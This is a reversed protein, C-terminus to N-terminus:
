NLCRDKWPNPLGNCLKLFEPSNAHFNYTSYKLLEDFCEEQDKADTVSYCLNTSKAINRYDTEIMRSAANAFCKGELNKPLKSCYNKIRETDFNFQATLVYFLGEFCRPQNEKDEKSCFKILEDPKNIIDQGYLPWSESLCSARAYGSYAACFSDVQTRTVEKGAILAFDEPELPQYIQMFVGDLCVQLFSRGDIKVAIEECLSISSSINASTIYMTLHGLAHYCSAQELGTPNWNSRKECISALEPKIAVVEEDTFSEARFREQFGGHICGNSCLGSPCRSVTEKWKSPDKKVEKASLNHGLVHCYSFSTDKEQVLRTVGFAEEMTLGAPSDLLAPIEKDYCSQHHSDSSCKTLIQNAYQALDRSEYRSLGFLLFIFFATLAIARKM